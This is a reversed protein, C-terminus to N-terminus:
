KSYDIMLPTKKGRPFDFRNFRDLGDDFGNYMDKIDCKQRRRNYMERKGDKEFVFFGNGFLSYIKDPKITEEFYKFLSVDRDASKIYQFGDFNEYKGILVWVNDDTTKAYVYDLSPRKYDLYQELDDLTPLKDFKTDKFENKRFIDYIAYVKVISDRHFDEIYSEATKLLKKVQADKLINDQAFTPACMACLALTIFLHRM